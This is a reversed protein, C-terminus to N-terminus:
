AAVPLYHIEWAYPAVQFVQTIQRVGPRQRVIEVAEEESTAQITLSYEQVTVPPAGPTGEVRRPPLPVPVHPAAERREKGLTLLALLLLGFGLVLLGGDRLATAM